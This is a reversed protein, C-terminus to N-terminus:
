HSFRERIRLVIITLAIGVVAGFTFLRAAEYIDADGGLGVAAASGPETLYIYITGPDVLIVGDSDIMANCVTPSSCVTVNDTGNSVIISEITGPVPAIVVYGKTNLDLQLVNDKLSMSTILVGPETAVVVKGDVTAVSINLDQITTFGTTNGIVVYKTLAVSTPPFDSPDAITGLGTPSPNNLSKISLPTTSPSSTSVIPLIEIAPIGDVLVRKYTLASVDSYFTIDSPVGTGTISLSVSGTVDPLTTTTVSFSVGLATEPLLSYAVSPLVPYSTEDTLYALVINKNDYLITANAQDHRGYFVNPEQLTKPIPTPSGIVGQPVYVKYATITAPPRQLVFERYVTGSLTEAITYARIKDGPLPIVTWTDSIGYVYASYSSANISVLYSGLTYITDGSKYIPPLLDETGNYLVSTGGKYLITGINWNTDAFRALVYITSNSTFAYGISVDNYLSTDYTASVTIATCSGTNVDYMVVPTGNNNITPAYVVKYSDDDADYLMYLASVLDPLPVECAHNVTLTDPNVDVLLAKTNDSTTYLWIAHGQIFPPAVGYYPSRPLLNVGNYQLSVETYSTVFRDDRIWAKIFGVTGGYYNQAITTDYFGFVYTTNIMVSYVNGALMGTKVWVTTLFSPVITVAHTVPALVILSSVIIAITTYRINM